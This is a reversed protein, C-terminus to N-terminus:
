YFKDILGSYFTDFPKNNQKLNYGKITNLLFIYLFIIVHILINPERFNIMPRYENHDLTRLRWDTNLGPSSHLTVSVHKVLIVIIMLYICFVQSSLKKLQGVPERRNILGECDKM